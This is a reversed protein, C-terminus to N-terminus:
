FRFGIKSSVTTTEGSKEAEATFTAFALKADFGVFTRTRNVSVSALSSGNASSESRVTGVGIYPTLVPLPKAAILDAGISRATVQDQGFERNATVRAALGPLVLTPEVVQYRVLAGATTLGTSGVTGISAGIDVGAALGKHITLRPSFVETTGGGARKWVDGNGVRTVSAEVGVDFGLLNLSVGPSLARLATVSAIDKALERFADQSLRRVDDFGGAHALSVTTACLLAILTRNM